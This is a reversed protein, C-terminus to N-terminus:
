RPPMRSDYSPAVVLWEEFVLNSIADPDFTNVFTVFENRGRTFENLFLAIFETLLM